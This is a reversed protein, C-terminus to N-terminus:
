IQELKLYQTHPLRTFLATDHLRWVFEPTFETRHGHVLFTKATREWFPAGVVSSSTDRM